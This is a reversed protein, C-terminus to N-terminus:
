ESYGSSLILVEKTEMSVIAVSVHISSFLGVTEVQYVQYRDKEKLVKMIPQLIKGIEGIDEDDVYPDSTFLSYTLLFADVEFHESVTYDNVQVIETYKDEFLAVVDEKQVTSSQDFKFTIATSKDAAEINVENWKEALERINGDSMESLDHIIQIARAHFSFTLILLLILGKM